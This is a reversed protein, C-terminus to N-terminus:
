PHGAAYVVRQEFGVLGYDGGEFGLPERHGSNLRWTMVLPRDPAVIEEM